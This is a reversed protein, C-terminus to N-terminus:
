QNSQGSRLKRAEEIRKNIAEQPAPFRLRHLAFEKEAEDDKNQLVLLLGKDFHIDPAQMRSGVVFTLDNIARQLDGKKIYLQSRLKYGYVDDKKITMGKEYNELAKDLEEKHMYLRGLNFYAMSVNMLQERQAVKRDAEEPTNATFSGSMESGILFVQGGDKEKGDRKITVVDGVPEGGKLKPLQGGRKGEYRDLFDQLQLLAENADGKREYTFSLGVHASAYNPNIALATQYDAISGAVDGMDRKIMAVASYVKESKLGNAIAANYDKLAGAYDRKFSRFMGRQEYTKADNPDIELVSTFDAIAGDLDGLMMRIHGRLKYAELLDKRQEIAKDLIAIAGARDGKNLKENAKRAYETKNFQAQVPVAIGVILLCTLLFYKKM